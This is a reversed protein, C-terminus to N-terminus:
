CFYFLPMIPFWIKHYFWVIERLLAWVFDFEAIGEEAGGGSAAGASRWARAKAEEQEEEAEQLKMDMEDM